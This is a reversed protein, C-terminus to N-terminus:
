SAADVWTTGFKGGMAVILLVAGDEGAWEPGYAVGARVWRLDGPVFTGEGEIHFEGSRIVYLTDSPHSHLSLRGNPPFTVEVISPEGAVRRLHVYPEIEPHEYLVAEADDISFRRIDDGDPTPM